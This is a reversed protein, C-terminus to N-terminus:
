DYDADDDADYTSEHVNEQNPVHSKYNAPRGDGGEKVNEYDQRLKFDNESIDSEHEITLPNQGKADGAHIIIAKSKKRSSPAHKKIKLLMAPNAGVARKSWLGENLPGEFSQSNDSSVSKLSSGARRGKRGSSKVLTPESTSADRYILVKGCGSCSVFQLDDRMPPVLVGCHSCWLM